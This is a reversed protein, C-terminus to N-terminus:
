PDSGTLDTPDDPLSDLLSFMVEVVSVSDDEEVLDVSQSGGSVVSGELPSDRVPDDTNKKLVQVANLGGLLDNNNSRGVPQVCNIRGKTSSSPEIANDSYVSWVFFSPLLDQLDVQILSLFSCTTLEGIDVPGLEGM